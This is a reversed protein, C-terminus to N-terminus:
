SPPLVHFLDADGQASVLEDAGPQDVKKLELGAYPNETLRRRGVGVHEDDGGVPQGRCM